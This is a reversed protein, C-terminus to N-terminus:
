QTVQIIDMGSRLTNCTNKMCEMTHSIEDIITQKTASLYEFTVVTHDVFLKIKNHM